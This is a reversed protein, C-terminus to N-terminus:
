RLLTVRGHTNYFNKKDLRYTLTYSYVGAAAPNGNVTGDWGANIDNTTFILSGWRDYISFIYEQADVYSNVPKFVRNAEIQSAPCFTNPIYTIAEKSMEVINSFSKDQFGYINTNNENASVQYYFKGGGSAAEWVTESYDLQTAPVNGSFQFVPEIQTRRFIDYSDLRQAFGYYPLWTIAIEDGQSAKMELVINNATDSHAFINDCENDTIAVTYFYTHGQVDVDNDIFSYNEEGNIKSKTDIKSFTAKNNDSKYLFLSRHNFTDAAFVAIEIDQNDVVSAYRLLVYGDSRIEYTFEVEVKASSSSYGNKSNYAQV